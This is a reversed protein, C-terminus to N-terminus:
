AIRRGDLTALRLRPTEENAPGMGRIDRVAFPQAPLGRLRSVMGLPQYLGLFRDPTGTAGALPAFLVEMALSPGETLVEVTAVIPEPRRWATELATHLNFRDRERVLSLGNQQRLDRQHLEAVFGGALRVPYVGSRTRGLIFVQAIIESFDAPSIASRLPLRGDGGRTRWYDILRETNSHFVSMSICGQGRGFDVAHPKCFSVSWDGPTEM